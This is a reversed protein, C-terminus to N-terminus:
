RYRTRLRGHQRRGSATELAMQPRSVSRGLKTSGTDEPPVTGSESVLVGDRFWETRYTIPDLEFDVSAVDVVVGLTDTTKAPDPSIRITPTTPLGNVRFVTVATSMLGLSDTATLTVTHDGIALAATTALTLGSSDPAGTFIVGDIDSMWEVALSTEAEDADTASGLFTVVDGSNAVSGDVPSAISVVPPRGVIFVIDDVCVAGVEDAVTMSLTHTAVSLSSSAITVLGDSDPTSEGILGDVDSSWTVALAEPGIDADDVVGQFTSTLGEGGGAGTSPSTIGCTPPQNPGRVSITSTDSGSVGDADTGTLTLIHPGESLMVSGMTTGAADLDPSVALAGDVDSLWAAELAGAADEADIILGEIEIPHDMYYLVEGRPRVLEVEPRTTIVISRDVACTSGVDDQALLTLTHPSVSLESATLTVSGDGEPTSEGILDDVDSLWQVSLRNAEDPWDLDGVMGTLTIPTDHTWVLGEEPSAWECSPSRNPGGVTIQVGTSTTKDSTDTVSVGINWVGEDLDLFGGVRGDADPTPPLDVAVAPTDLTADQLTWDVVLDAALDETDSVEAVVEVGLSAYYRGAAVPSLLSVQPAETPEVDLRVADAGTSGRPDQVLVTITDERASLRMSCVTEGFESVAAAECVTREGATWTAILDEEPDDADDVVALITILMGEGVVTGDEHSAIDVDPEANVATLKQEGCAVSLALVLLSSRM